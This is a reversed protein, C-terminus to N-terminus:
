HFQINKYQYYKSICTASGNHFIRTVNVYPRFNRHIETVNLHIPYSFIQVYKPIALFLETGTNASAIAMDEINNKM